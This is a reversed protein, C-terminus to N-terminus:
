ITPHLFLLFHKWLLLTKYVPGQIHSCLSVKVSKLMNGSHEQDPVAKKGKKEKSPKVVQEQKDKEGKPKSMLGEWGKGATARRPRAPIGAHSRSLPM